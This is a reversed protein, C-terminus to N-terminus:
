IYGPTSSIYFTDMWTERDIHEQKSVTSYEIICAFSSRTIFGSFTISTLQPANFYTKIFARRGENHNM